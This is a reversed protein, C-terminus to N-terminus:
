LFIENSCKKGYEFMTSHLGFKRSHHYSDSHHWKFDLKMLIEEEPRNKYVITSCLTLLKEYKRNDLFPELKTVTKNNKSLKFDLIVKCSPM